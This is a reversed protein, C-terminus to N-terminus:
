LRVGANDCVAIAADYLKLVSQERDKGAYIEELADYLAVISKLEQDVLSEVIAIAGYVQDNYNIDIFVEIVIKQVVEEIESNRLIPYANKFNSTLTTIIEQVNTPQSFVESGFIPDVDPTLNPNLNESKTM